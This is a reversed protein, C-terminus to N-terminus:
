FLYIVSFVTLGFLAVTVLLPKDTFLIKDPAEGRNNEYVLQLYRMVALIVFPVSLMLLKQTQFSRPFNLYISAPLQEVAVQNQFTFLAYTLWTATAFMATYQDLLRQSYRTLTKRTLGTASKPMTSLLTMESQRKAVAIFLAASLVTLLFWVSMHLNVVASGAYIRILFGTAISVIDLIAIHKFYNVYAIQLLFYTLVLVGFFVPFFLSSIFVFFLISVAALVAVPVPLIGAAIPRFRKFPHHRDAEVDIIDNIIYISSTLLSFVFFAATVQLFYSAAHAPKYFLFGSFLLPAYLALNKVWQRPRMTKILGYIISRPKRKSM